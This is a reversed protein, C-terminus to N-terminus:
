HIQKVHDADTTATTANIVDAPYANVTATGAPGEYADWVAAKAIWARTKGGM